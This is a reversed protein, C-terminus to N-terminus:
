ATSHCVSWFFSSTFSLFTLLFATFNDLSKVDWAFFNSLIIVGKLFMLDFVNYVACTIIALIPKLRFFDSVKGKEEFVRLILINLTEKISDNVEYLVCVFVFLINENMTNLSYRARNGQNYCIDDKLISVVVFFRLREYLLFTNYSTWIISKHNLKDLKM